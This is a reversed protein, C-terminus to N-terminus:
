RAKQIARSLSKQRLATLVCFVIFGLTVAESVSLKGQGSTEWAEVIARECTAVWDAKLTDRQKRPRKGALRQGARNKCRTSAAIEPAPIFAFAGLM